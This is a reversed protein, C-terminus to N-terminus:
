RSNKDKPEMSSRQQKQTAYYRSSGGVQIVKAFFKDVMSKDLSGWEVQWHEGNEFSTMDMWNGFIPRHDLPITRGHTTTIKLIKRTGFTAIRHIKAALSLGTETPLIDIWVRHEKNVSKVTIQRVNREAPVTSSKKEKISSKPSSSSSSPQRSEIAPSPTESPTSEAWETYAASPEQWPHQQQQQYYQPQNYYQHQAIQHDIPYPQQIQTVGDSYYYDHHDGQQYYYQNQPDM